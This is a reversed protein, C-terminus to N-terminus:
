FLFNFSCVTLLQDICTLAKHYNQLFIVTRLWKKVKYQRTYWPFCICLITTILYELLFSMSYFYNLGRTTLSENIKERQKVVTFKNEYSVIFTLDNTTIFYIPSAEGKGDRQRRAGRCSVGVLITWILAHIYM